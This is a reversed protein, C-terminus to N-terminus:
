TSKWQTKRQKKWNRQRNIIHSNITEYGHPFCYSCGTEEGIVIRSVKVNSIKQPLDALGVENKGYAKILRCERKM